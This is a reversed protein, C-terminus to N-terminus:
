TSLLLPVGEAQPALEQHTRGFWKEKLIFNKTKIYHASIGKGNLTIVLGSIKIM